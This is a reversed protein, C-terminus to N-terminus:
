DRFPAPPWMVWLYLAVLPLIIILYVLLTWLGRVPYSSNFGVIAVLGFIITAFIFVLYSQFQFSGKSKRSIHEDGMLNIGHTTLYNNPDDYDISIMSFFLRLEKTRHEEDSPNQVVVEDVELPLDYDSKEM